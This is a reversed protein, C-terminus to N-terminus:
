SRGAGAALAVIYQNGSGWQITFTLGAIRWGDASRALQYDHRGGVTWVPGGTANALVHTGMMNAACTAEDGYLDIVHCTILHHVADLSQLTQRWGEIFDARSLTVPEGGLLSTRDSYVPDTFLEGLANWDRADLALVLRGILEIIAVRDQTDTSTSDPTTTTM